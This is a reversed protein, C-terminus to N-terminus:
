NRYAFWMSDMRDAQKPTFQFMCEDDTYDMFNYIPDLGPSKRDKCTDRGIPSGYAASREAPTDDILDNTANCGGQFTHYLGLWHGVEHTTTDGLNYPAASGGPLSSYLIVVGDDLSRSKYNWPFTSWGLLGQGPNATYLNLTNAGGVRLATKAQAEAMTGPSMTYWTANTTRDVGALAFRFPTNSNALPAPHTPTDLGSYCTNLFNIQATIMELPVDGNAIGPGKNIVHVYVNITISGDASRAAAGPGLKAERQAKRAKHDKEIDDMAKPGPHKTMCRVSLTEYDEMCDDDGADQAHRFANALGFAGVALLIAPVSLFYISRRWTQIM